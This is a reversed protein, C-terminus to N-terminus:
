GLLADREAALAAPDLPRYARAASARASALRELGAPSIEPCAALLTATAAIDGACYLALDCGAELAALARDVPAGTLAGMALDDSVLVGGFGIRDRIVDKVVARSLTAPHAADWAPYLIHATMAWPLDANLAFPLIDAEAEAPSGEVVPLAHHSDARARGHGPAHKIVPQAGAALLGDAVARGMEAIARPDAGFARDGIVDHAGPLGRDLVPAAVVDLGSAVCEAGILAGTLFAARKGRAPEADFLRGLAAAPRLRAVRGGEQDVMLVSDPPLIQRLAATLAGLQARDEVNRAFLIVGAPPHLRLLDAEGVTLAPGSLGVIAARRSDPNRM